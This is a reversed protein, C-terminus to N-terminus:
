GSDNWMQTATQLVLAQAFRKLHFDSYKGAFSGVPSMNEYWSRSSILKQVEEVKFLIKVVPFLRYKYM